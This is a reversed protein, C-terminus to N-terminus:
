LGLRGRYTTTGVNEAGACFFTVMVRDGNVKVDTAKCGTSATCKEVFARVSKLDGNM